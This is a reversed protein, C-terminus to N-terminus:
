EPLTPVRLVDHEYIDVIVLESPHLLEFGMLLAYQMSSYGRERKMWFPPHEELLAM